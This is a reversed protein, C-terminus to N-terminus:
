PEAELAAPPVTGGGLVSATVVLDAVFGDMALRREPDGQARLISSPHLVTALVYPALPSDVFRGRHSTVRFDADSCRRPRPPGSPWWCPPDCWRWSPRWGRDAAAQEAANPEQHLRRKGRPTWKFHKVVNTAYARERDIGAAGLSEDLVRSAPGVFPTGELDECDGPQDSTTAM